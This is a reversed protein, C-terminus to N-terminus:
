GSAGSLSRSVSAWRGVLKEAAGSDVAGAVREMAARLDAALDGSLGTFAAVAGAANVLVADRVPGTEGAFLRRAVSANFAVDGGRLDAASARPVGLDLPEVSDRRVQGASVCWVSTTDTTTIEDLGDDGRVVLASAGRGALVDAIVPALRPDACGILGSSPQAPNTLPGLLNMATPVGLERRVAGAQRFSPHFVPAFCFGIGVEALCRSVGDPPLDIAIGLEELLDAAGSRSSAARNGHKVVPVGAAAVVIATMSSINVSNSKDGGTGVVDV